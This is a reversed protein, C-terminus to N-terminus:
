ASLDIWHQLDRVPCRAAIALVADLRITADAQYEDGTRDDPRLQSDARDPFNERPDDVVAGKGNPSRRAVGIKRRSPAVCAPGRLIVSNKMM